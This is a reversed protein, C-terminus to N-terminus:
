EDDAVEELHRYRALGAFERRSVRVSVPPRRVDISMSGIGPTKGVLHQVPGQVLSACSGHFQANKPLVVIDGVEVDITQRGWHEDIVVLDHEIEFGALQERLRPLRTRRLADADAHPLHGLTRELHGVLTAFGVGIEQAIIFVMEPTPHAVPWGRRAFGSEIALKPMMLAAAFRHAVFEEPSWSRTAEDSLEDLRTGHNFIHHGLEHGCTYRRRGPPREVSVVITPDPAPSYM